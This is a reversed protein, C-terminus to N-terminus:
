SFSFIVTVQIIQGAVVPIPTSLLADSFLNGGGTSNCPVQCAGLLTMVRNVAGTAIATISGALTVTPQLGTGTQSVQLNQSEVNGGAPNTAGPEIIRCTHTPSGNGLSGGLCPSDGAGLSTMHVSWLSVTPSSHSLIASLTQHGGTALANKFARRTVLTGDPNRVEIVWDGHIKIGEQPGGPGGGRSQAATGGSLFVALAAFVLYRVAHRLKEM